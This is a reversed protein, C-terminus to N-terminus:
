QAAEGRAAAERQLQSQHRQLQLRQEETLVIGAMKRHLTAATHLHGITVRADPQIAM